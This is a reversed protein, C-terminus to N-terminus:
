HKAQAGRLMEAGVIEAIEDDSFGNELLHRVETQITKTFPSEHILTEPTEAM